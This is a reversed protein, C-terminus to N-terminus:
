STAEMPLQQQPTALATRPSLWLCETKVGYSERVTIDRRDWGAYWQDYLPAPYGSVIAFGKITHLLEALQQHQEITMEHQYATQRWRESRTTELYPPDVYFLTRPADFRPIVKFADDHELQVMKLRHALRELHRLEVWDSMTDRNRAPTRQYRWGTNWIGRGGNRSQISRLFLRRAREIPELDPFSGFASDHEERSWPTANILAILEKPQDRLVRFFNVVESDLDNYVEFRSPNKRLGVAYGGAFPEVYCDHPPFHAIIHPALKYKGGYYRLAPRHVPPKGSM